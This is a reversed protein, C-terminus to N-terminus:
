LVVGDLVLAPRLLMEQFRELFRGVHLGDVLAHHVEISIPLKCNDSRKGFVIRPICDTAPCRRAHAFSSFSIWPLVSYYILDDRDASPQLVGPSGALALVELGNAEFRDFNTSYDFYGFGFTEDERLVTSGASIAPHIVVEESRIRLRLEEIENAAKLSLFLTSLFFSRGTGSAFEVLATVDMESCINFFPQEFERFFEFHERRKWTSLDLRCGKKADSDSGM